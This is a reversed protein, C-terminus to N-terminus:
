FFYYTDEGIPYSEGGTVRKESTPKPQPPFFFIETVKKKKREETHDYSFITIQLFTLTINHVNFFAYFNGWVRANM